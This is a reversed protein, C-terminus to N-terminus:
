GSGNATGWIIFLILAAVGIATAGLHLLLVDEDRYIWSDILGLTVLAALFWGLGQPAGAIVLGLAILAFVIYRAAMALPLHTELHGFDAPYSAVKVAAFLMLAATGLGIAIGLGTLM